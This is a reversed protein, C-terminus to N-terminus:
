EGRIEVVAVTHPELDVSFDRAYPITRRKPAIADPHQLSAADTPQATVTHLTAVAKSPVESGQLRVLLTNQQASYNVAKIVIRHKDASMTAVADSSEPTWGEPIFTSIKDFLRSRDPVDRVSGTASALYLEAYHDRFLKEVM